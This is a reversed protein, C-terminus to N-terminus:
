SRPRRCRRHSLETIDMASVTAVDTPQFLLPRWDGSSFAELGLRYAPADPDDPNGFTLFAEAVPGADTFELALVFSAGLAGLPTLAEQRRPAHRRRRQGTTAPDRGTKADEIWLVYARQHSYSLSDFFRKAGTDEGLAAALDDPVEVVRPATDVEIGVTIVDGAAVGAADRNGANLPIWFAGGMPAVTTRFSHGGITVRVPPRKGAALATVVEDPVQIGTATKGGLIVTGDFSLAM